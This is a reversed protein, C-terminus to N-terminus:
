KGIPRGLQQFFPHVEQNVFDVGYTNNDENRPTRNLRTDVGKLYRSCFTLCEEALYGETISGEPQAKNGVYSKLTSLFREIPYMWRGQVPGGLNVESVLHATLHVMVDFFSPPFIRELQCLTLSIQEKLRNLKDIEGTKSCLDKFFSCLQILPGSVPKPLLRRIMLPLLQQMLIHSDYSKFPAIKRQKLNCCRSINAAYGDPVKVGKLAKCLLQREKASLTFCTPPVYIKGSEHRQPHLKDRIGM